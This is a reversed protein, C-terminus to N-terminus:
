NPLRVSIYHAIRTATPPDLNGLVAITYGNDCIRLEGNIGPGGGGHGICRVSDETHDGFGYAYKGGYRTKIKGTTLVATHKADLLRHAELANAFALLDYVTSDGGGAAMARYPIWRTNPELGGYISTYGIAGTRENWIPESTETMGAPAYVLEAVAEYYTKNTVRELIAGLVVVGYNSYEWRAGPAHRPPRAGYKALYDDHTRLTLRVDDWDAEFIDGTGGTHTLLHHITVTEAIERDPYNPILKGVTDTLAIRGDQVLRMIATATFMKNMSGLNFQTHLTNAIGRERDALGYTKAFIVEGHRAVLVSGAFADEAVRRDLEASLAAIAERESTRKSKTSTVHIALTLAFLCLLSRWHM